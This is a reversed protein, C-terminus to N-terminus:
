TFATHEYIMSSSDVRVINTVQFLPREIRFEGGEVHLVIEVVDQLSYQAPEPFPEQRLFLSCADNGGARLGQVVAVRLTQHM